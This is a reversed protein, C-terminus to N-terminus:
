GEKKIKMKNIWLHLSWIVTAGFVLLVAIYYHSFFHHFFAGVLIYASAICAKLPILEANSWTTKIKFFNM